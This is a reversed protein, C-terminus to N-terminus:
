FSFRVFTFCFEIWGVENVYIADYVRVEHNFSSIVQKRQPGCAFFGLMILLDQVKQAVNYKSPLLKKKEKYDKIIKM